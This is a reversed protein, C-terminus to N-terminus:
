RPLPLNLSFRCGLRKRIREGDVHTLNLLTPLIDVHSTLDYIDQHKCGKKWFVLPVKISEDYANFWKQHMNGHSSLLDGHDSIFLVITNDYSKSRKFENWVKLMDEDVEKMMTFYTRYYKDLNTIPQFFTHYHDRYYKQAHPKFSLNETHSTNFEEKFLRDPLTPDVPFDFSPNDQTLAGFLTIDHPNVFSAFMLWPDCAKDLIKLDSIVQDRYGGDRSAGMNQPLAGHPEPGIWGDYGYNHLPNKELYFKELAPISKGNMDFTSLVVGDNTAISADSVHWKGKLRTNYGAEQFYNGITPVTFEPLWTMEPDTAQLALGDTQTVGHVHPYHGTHLTTRAPACATTNTYHNHFVVGEKKLQEEFLLNNKKWERLEESEYSPPYRQEDVMFILVNPRSSM